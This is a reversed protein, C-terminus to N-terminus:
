PKRTIVPMMQDGWNGTTTHYRSRRVLEVTIGGDAVETITKNLRRLDSALTKLLPTDPTMDM